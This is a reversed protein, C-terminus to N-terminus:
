RGPRGRGFELVGIPGMASRAASRAATLSDRDRIDAPFAAATVGLGALEGVLADLKARTRAILGVRFGRRGFARAM